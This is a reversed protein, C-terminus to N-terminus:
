FRTYKNKHQISPTNKKQPTPYFNTYQQSKKRQYDVLIWGNKPPYYREYEILWYLDGHKEKFKQQYNDPLARLLERARGCEISFKIGKTLKNTKGPHQIIISRVLDYMLDTRFHNNKIMTIIREIEYRRFFNTVQKYELRKYWKYIWAIGGPISLQGVYQTRLLLLMGEISALKNVYGCTPYKQSQQSLTVLPNNLGIVKALTSLVIDSKNSTLIVKIWDATLENSHAIDYIKTGLNLDGHEGRNTVSIKGLYLVISFKHRKWGALLHVMKGVHYEGLLDKYATHGTKINNQADFIKNRYYESMKFVALIINLRSKFESPSLSLVYKSLSEIVWSMGKSDYTGAFNMPFAIDTPLHQNLLGLVHGARSVALAYAKIKSEHFHDLGIFRKVNALNKDSIYEYIRPMIEFLNKKVEPIAMFKEIIHINQNKIAQYLIYNDSVHATTKVPSIALLDDVMSARSYWVAYYLPKNKHSTLTEKIHPLNILYKFAQTNNSIICQLLIKNKQEHLRARLVPKNLLGMSLSYYEQKITACLVNMFDIEGRHDPPLLKMEKLLAIYDIRNQYSNLINNGLNKKFLNQIKRLGFDIYQCTKVVEICAWVEISFNPPISIFITLPKLPPSDKDIEM